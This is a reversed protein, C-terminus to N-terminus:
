AAGATGAQAKRWVAHGEQVGAYYADDEASAPDYLKPIRRGEIRFKLAALVGAKYAASRPDRPVAFAATFLQDATAGTTLSVAPSHQSTTTGPM